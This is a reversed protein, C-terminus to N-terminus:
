PRIEALQTVAGGSDVLAMEEETMEIPKWFKQPMQWFEDFDPKALGERRGENELQKGIPAGSKSLASEAEPRPTAQGPRATSAHKLMFADFNDVISQPAAPHPAANSENEPLTKGRFKIMPKYAGSSTTAHRAQARHQLVRRLPSRPLM